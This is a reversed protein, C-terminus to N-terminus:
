KLLKSVTSKYTKGIPIQHEKIFITNDDILEIHQMNIAYSRHVQTFQYKLLRQLVEKLSINILVTKGTTLHLKAYDNVAEVYMLEHINVKVHKNGAKVFLFPKETENLTKSAPNLHNNIKEISKKFRAPTVPKKLFTSFM